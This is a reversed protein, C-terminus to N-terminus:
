IFKQLIENHHLVLSKKLQPLIVLNILLEYFIGKKHLVRLSREIKTRQPHISTYNWEEHFGLIAQGLKSKIGSIRIDSIAVYYKCPVVFLVTTSLHSSGDTNTIQDITGQTRPISSSEVKSIGPILGYGKYLTMNQSKAVFDFVNEISAPIEFTIQIVKEQQSKENQLDVSKDSM